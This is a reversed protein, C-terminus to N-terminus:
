ILSHKLKELSNLFKTKLDHKTTYNNKIRKKYITLPNMKHVSIWEDTLIKREDLFDAWLQRLKVFSTHGGIKTMGINKLRNFCTDSGLWYLASNLNPILTLDGITHPHSYAAYCTDPACIEILVSGIDVLLYLM